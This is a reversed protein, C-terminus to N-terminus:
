GERQLDDSVIDATRSRNTQAASSAQGVPADLLTIKGARRELVIVLPSCDHVADAVLGILKETPIRRALYV